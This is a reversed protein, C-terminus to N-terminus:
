SCQPCDNSCKGSCKTKSSKRNKPNIFSPDYQACFDGLGKNSTKQEKKLQKQLRINTCLQTGIKYVYSALEGYSLLDYPIQGNHEERIKDRVQEGILKPLGALFKEKWFPQNCDSRLLVRQFFVDKYERFEGLFKCKM